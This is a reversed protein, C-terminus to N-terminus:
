VRSIIEDKVKKGMVSILEEMITSSLYNTHGSGRNGHTQIHQAIFVDYQAILELIGLYNGNRPSGILENDGRVALGREAIFKIVSVARELVSRIGTYQEIQKIQRAQLKTDMRGAVKLRRSFAIMADIHEEPQEHSDLRELAHKWNCFGSGILLSQSSKAACRHV